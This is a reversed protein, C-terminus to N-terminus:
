SEKALTEVKRIVAHLSAVPHTRGGHADIMSLKAKRLESLTYHPSWPFEITTRGFKVPTGTTPTPLHKEAFAQEVADVNLGTLGIVKTTM